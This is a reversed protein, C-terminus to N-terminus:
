RQEGPVVLLGDLLFRAPGHGVDGRPVLVLDLGDHLGVDHRRQNVQERVGLEVDFFSAAHATEL